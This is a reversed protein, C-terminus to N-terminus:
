LQPGLMGDGDSYPGSRRFEDPQRHGAIFHIRGRGTEAM